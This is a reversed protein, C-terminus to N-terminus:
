ATATNVGVRLGRQEELQELDGVVAPAGDLRLVALPVEEALGVRLTESDAPM